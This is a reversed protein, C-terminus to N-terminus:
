EEYTIFVTIPKSLIWQSDGYVTNIQVHNYDCAWFFNVGLGSVNPEYKSNNWQVMVSVSLIKSNDLGHSIVVFDGEMPGTIGNLKKVKISPADSGLKTYGNVELTAAPNSTGIGVKGNAKIRMRETMNGGQDYGFAIDASPNDSYIQFLNGLVAMGVDGTNGPYLTIKKGLLAPFSLPANPISNGIGVRSNIADYTFGWGAPGGYFGINQNNQTGMFGLPASNDAKYLWVGPGYNIDVPITGNRMTIRGNLNMGEGGFNIIQMRENFSTSSGYGFAINDLSTKSFIQFLGSQIGFGYHTPAGDTWLSIKDGLAGNFSLPFQPSSNNIGINQAHICIQSSLFLLLVIYKQTNIKSTRM